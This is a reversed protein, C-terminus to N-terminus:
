QPPGLFYDDLKTFVRGTIGRSITLLKDCTIGSLSGTSSYLGISSQSNFKASTDSKLASSQVPTAPKRSALEKFADAYM